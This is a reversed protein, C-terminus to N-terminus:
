KPRETLMAAQWILIGWDNLKRADEEDYNMPNLEPFSDVLSKPVMVMGDQAKAAPATYLPIITDWPCNDALLPDTLMCHQKASEKTLSCLWAVPEQEAVKPLSTVCNHCLAEATFSDGCACIPQGKTWEERLRRAYEVHFGVVDGCDEQTEKWIRLVMEDDIEKM